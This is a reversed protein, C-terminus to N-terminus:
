TSSYELSLECVRIPHLIPICKGSFTGFKREMFIKECIKVKKKRKMVTNTVLADHEAIM